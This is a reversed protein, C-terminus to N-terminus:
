KGLFNVKDQINYEFAIQELNKREPGDGIIILRYRDMLSRHKGLLSIIVDIKLKPVLRGMCIIIIDENNYGNEKRLLEKKNQLLSRYKKQEEYNLSNYIVNIKTSKVGMNILLQKGRNGYLFFQDALSYYIKRVLAKIGKDPKLLGHGWYVIKYGLLKAYVSYVWSTLINPNSLLVYHSAEKRLKWLKCFVGTEYDIKRGFISIQRLNTKFHKFEWNHRDSKITKDISSLDSFFVVDMNRSLANFVPVRYSPIYPYHIIVKKM